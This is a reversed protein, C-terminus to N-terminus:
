IDAYKRITVGECTVQDIGDTYLLFLLPGMVSGQPAESTVLQFQSKAGNIVVSQTRKM